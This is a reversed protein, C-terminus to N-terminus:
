MNELWTKGAHQPDTVRRPPIQYESTLLCIVNIQLTPSDCHSISCRSRWGLTHPSFLLTSPVWAFSLPDQLFETCSTGRPSAAVTSIKTKSLQENQEFIHQYQSMWFDKTSYIRSKDATYINQPAKTGWVPPFSLFQITIDNHALLPGRPLTLLVQFKNYGKM